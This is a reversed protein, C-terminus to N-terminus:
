APVGEALDASREVEAALTCRYEECTDPHMAELQWKTQVIAAQIDEAVVDRVFHVLGKRDGTTYTVRYNAM